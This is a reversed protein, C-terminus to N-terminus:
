TIRPGALAVKLPQQNPVYHILASEPSVANDYKVVSYGKSRSTKDHLALPAYKSCLKRLSDESMTLSCVHQKNPDMIAEFEHQCDESLKVDAECRFIGKTNIYSKLYYDTLTFTESLISPM